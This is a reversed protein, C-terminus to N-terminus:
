FASGPSTYGDGGSYYPPMRPAQFRHESTVEGTPATVVVNHTRDSNTPSGVNDNLEPYLRSPRPHPPMKDSANPAEDHNYGVHTDSLLCFPFSCQTLTLMPMSYLLQM